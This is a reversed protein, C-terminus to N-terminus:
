IFGVHAGVDLLVKAAFRAMTPEQVSVVVGTVIAVPVVRTTSEMGREVMRLAAVVEGAAFKEEASM